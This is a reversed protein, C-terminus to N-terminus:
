ALSAIVDIVCRYELERREYFGLRGDSWRVRVTKGVKAVVGELLGPPEAPPHGHQRLYYASLQVRDGLRFKM